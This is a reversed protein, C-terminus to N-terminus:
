QKAVCVVTGELKTKISPVKGLLGNFLTSFRSFSNLLQNQQTKDLHNCKLIMDRYHYSNYNNSSIIKEVRSEAKQVIKPAEVCM